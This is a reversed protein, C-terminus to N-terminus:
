GRQELIKWVGPLGLLALGGFLLLEHDTPTSFLDLAANAVLIIGLLRCATVTILDLLHWAKQHQRPTEKEEM